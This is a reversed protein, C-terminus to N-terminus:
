RRNKPGIPPGRSWTRARGLKPPTRRSRGNAPRRCAAVLCSREVTSRARCASVTPGPEGPRLLLRHHAQPRDHPRRQHKTAKERVEVVPCQAQERVAVYEIHVPESAVRALDGAAPVAHYPGSVARVARRVHGDEIETIVLSINDRGTWPVARRRYGARNTTLPEAQAVRSCQHSRPPHERRM